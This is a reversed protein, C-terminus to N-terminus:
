GFAGASRQHARGSNNVATLNSEGGRFLVVAKGNQVCVVCPNGSSGVLTLQVVDRQMWVGMGVAVASPQRPCISGCGEPTGSASPWRGWYRWYLCRTGSRCISRRLPMAACREVLWLMLRLWLSLVLGVLNVLPLLLPVASLVLLSIGLQLAPQLMWVVLLNCPIGVLSAAMGHAVLVPLTALSALAARRSPSQWAASRRCLRM